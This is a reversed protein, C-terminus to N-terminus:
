WTLVHVRLTIPHPSPKPDWLRSGWFIVGSAQVAAHLDLWAAPWHQMAPMNASGLQPMRQLLHTWRASGPVGLLGTSPSM